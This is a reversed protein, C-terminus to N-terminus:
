QCSQTTYESYDGSWSGDSWEYHYECYCSLGMYEGYQGYEPSCNSYTYVKVGQECIGNICRYTDGTCNTCVPILTCTAGNAPNNAYAYGNANLYNLAQQDADAQSTASGFMGAPVTFDVSTGAYGPPCDNRTFSMSMGLNYYLGCDEPQGNLRYCMKKVINGDQNRIISLRQFGDYEYYSVRNNADCQSTLGILPEYTYTTLVADEPYLRLEDIFTNGTIGTSTVGANTKFTYLTWGNYTRGTSQLTANAVTPPAKAFVTLMYRKTSNLTPTFIQCNGLNFVRAGTPATADLQGGCTFTFGGTVMGDDFSTYAVESAAANLIQAIPYTNNYGWIYSTKIDNIKQQDILKRSNYDYNFTAVDKYQPLNPILFPRQNTFQKSFGLTAATLPQATKLATVKAPQLSYTWQPINNLDKFSTIANAMLVDNKWVEKALPVLNNQGKLKGIEGNVATATNNYDFSYYTVEETNEGKSNTSITRTPQIHQTSEYKYNVENVKPNNNDDYETTVVKDLYDKGTNLKYFAPSYYAQPPNQTGVEKYVRDVLFGRIWATEDKIISYTYQKKTKLQNTATYIKEEEMFNYTYDYALPAVPYYNNQFGGEYVINQPLVTNIDIGFCNPAVYQQKQIRTTPANFSREPLKYNIIKYGNEANLGYKEKVQTYVVHQGQALQMAGLNSSSWILKPLQGYNSQCYGGTNATSGNLQVQWENYCGSTYYARPDNVLEGPTYEYATVINSNTVADTTTIKKIRLGSATGINNAVAHPEFEFSVTGGLPDKISSIIGVKCYAAYVNRDAGYLFSGGIGPHPVTPLMTRNSTQNNFYGWHDVAFSLRRPMPISEEYNIEYAPKVKTNDGSIERVKKLRLRKADSTGWINAIVAGTEDNTSSLWYDQELQVQKLVKNDSNRKIIIKDLRAANLDDRAAVNFAVTYNETIIKQLRKVNNSNTVLNFGPPTPIYNNAGYLPVPESTTSMESGIEYSTYAETAYEYLVTKNENPYEIRTLQWDTTGAFQPSGGRSTYASVGGIACDDGFYYKTGDPTLITFGLKPVGNCVSGSLSYWIRVDTKVLQRIVGDEDFVFKGSMGNPLVYSFIDPQGDRLNTFFLNFIVNRDHGPAGPNDTGNTPNNAGNLIYPFQKLGNRNIYAGGNEDPMGKIARSVFGGGSLSWGLGVWSAMDHVKTGGAHYSLNINIAAPGDSIAAIPINISPVGTNYSVPVDIFKGIGAVNPPPQVVSKLYSNKADSQAAVGLVLLSFWCLFFLRM